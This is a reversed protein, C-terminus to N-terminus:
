AMLRVVAAGPATAETVILLPFVIKIRRQVRGTRMYPL